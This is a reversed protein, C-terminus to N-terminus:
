GAWRDAAGRPVGHAWEEERGPREADQVEHRRQQNDHRHGHRGERGALQRGIQLLYLRALQELTGVAEALRRTLRGDCGDVPAVIKEAIGIEIGVDGARDTIGALGDVDHDADICFAHHAADLEDVM